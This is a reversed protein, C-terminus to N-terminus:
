TLFVLVIVLVGVVLVAILKPAYRSWDARKPRDYIGVTKVVPREPRSSDKGV